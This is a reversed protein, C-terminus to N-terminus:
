RSSKLYTITLAWRSYSGWLLKMKKILLRVGPFIVFYTVSHQMSRSFQPTRFNADVLFEWVCCICAVVVINNRRCNSSFSQISVVRNGSICLGIAVSFKPHPAIFKPWSTTYLLPNQFEIPESGIQKGSWTWQCIIIIMNSSFYNTDVGSLMITSPFFLLLWSHVQKTTLM